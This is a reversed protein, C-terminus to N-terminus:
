VDKFPSYVVPTDIALIELENCYLGLEYPSLGLEYPGIGSM